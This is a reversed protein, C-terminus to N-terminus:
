DILYSLVANLRQLGAKTARLGKADFECLGEACLKNLKASPLLASLSAGFTDQWAHADIGEVLRLGMMMAERQAVDPSLTECLRQGHGQTEAQRLWADPHEHNETATRTRENVFRGHAAPGIGIYDGYHWYTLNHRSEEGQAAFNSIEYMPVGASEMMAQTMEFMAGADDENATFTEERARKFFHSGEEITLQYLSMHRAGFDLAENLEAEWAAPTQGARAYILDFSYRPFIHAALEIAKRAEGATHTRGLFRLADGRLAQVGLSLRNVGLSRIEAFKNAESSTPNAELTIEVDGSLRWCENIKKLVVEVTSSPMLSPTGGGFYVSAITRGSLLTAYHDLERVYAEAWAAHDVEGMVRSNFDCYPCKSLCFPWHVYIALPPM